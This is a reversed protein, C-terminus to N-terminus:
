AKSHKGYNQTDVHGPVTKREPTQGLPWCLVSFIAYWADYQNPNLTWPLFMKLCEFCKSIESDGGDRGLVRFMTTFAQTQANLCGYPAAQKGTFHYPALIEMDIHFSIMTGYPKLHSIGKNRFSLNCFFVPLRVVTLSFHTCVLTAYVRTACWYIVFFIMILESRIWFSITLLHVYMVFNRIQHLAPDLRWFACAGCAHDVILIM